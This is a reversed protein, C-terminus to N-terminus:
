RRKEFKSEDIEFLQDNGGICLTDLYSELILKEGIKQVIRSIAQM